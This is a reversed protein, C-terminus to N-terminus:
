QGAQSCKEYLRDNFAALKEVFLLVNQPSYTGKDVLLLLVM